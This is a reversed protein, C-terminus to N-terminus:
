GERIKIVNCTTTKKVGDISQVFNLVISGINYPEAELFVILDFPGLLADVQEVEKISILKHYVDEVKGSEVEILVYAKMDVESLIPLPPNPGGFANVLLNVTQGRQGSPYRGALRM